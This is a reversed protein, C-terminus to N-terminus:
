KSRRELKGRWSLIGNKLNYVKEFGLKKMQKCAGVSRGGSACYVLYTKSRDLEELKKSFNSNYFDILISRPIRFTNHEDKTRVDLIVPCPEENMLKTFDEPTIHDINGESNFLAEFINM